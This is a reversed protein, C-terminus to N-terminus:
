MACSHTRVLQLYNVVRRFGMRFGNNDLETCAASEVAEHKLGKHGRAGGKSWRVSDSDLGFFVGQAM